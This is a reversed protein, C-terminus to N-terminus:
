QELEPLKGNVLDLWIKEDSDSMGGMSLTGGNPETWIQSFEDMRSLVGDQLNGAVGVVQYKGSLTYSLRGMVLKALQTHSAVTLVEREMELLDKVIKLQVAVDELTSTTDEIQKLFGTSQTGVMRLQKVLMVVTAKTSALQAQARPNDLGRLSEMIPVVGQIAKVIRVRQEKIQEPTHGSNALVERIKDMDGVVSVITDLTSNVQQRDVLNLEALSGIIGSEADIRDMENTMHQSAESLEKLQEQQKKRNQTEEEMGDELTQLKQDVSNVLSTLVKGTDERAWVSGGPVLLAVVFMWTVTQRIWKM